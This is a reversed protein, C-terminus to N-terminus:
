QAARRRSDRKGVPQLAGERARCGGLLLLSNPWCFEAALAPQRGLSGSAVDGSPRMKAIRSARRSCQASAKASRLADSGSSRWGLQWQELDKEAQQSSAAGQIGDHNGDPVEEQARAETQLQKCEEEPKSSTASPRALPLGLALLEQLAERHMERDEPESCLYISAPTPAFHLSASAQSRNQSQAPQQGESALGAQQMEDGGRREQQM